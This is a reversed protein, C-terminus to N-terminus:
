HKMKTEVREKVEISEKVEIPYWSGLIGDDWSGIGPHGLGLIGPDWRGGGGAAM